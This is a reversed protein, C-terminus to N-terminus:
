PSMEWFFPCVAKCTSLVINLHNFELHVTKISLAVTIWPSPFCQVFPYPPLVQDHVQSTPVTLSSLTRQITASDILFQNPSSLQAWWSCPQDTQFCFSFQPFFIHIITFALCPFLLLIQTLCYYYYFGSEILGEKTKSLTKSPLRPQSPGSFGEKAYWMSVNYALVGWDPKYM